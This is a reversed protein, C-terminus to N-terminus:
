VNSTTIYKKYLVQIISEDPIYIIDLNGLYEIPQVNNIFYVIWMLNLNSLNANELILKNNRYKYISRIQPTIDLPFARDKIYSKHDYILQRFKPDTNAYNGLKQNITDTLKM